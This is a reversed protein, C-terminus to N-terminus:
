LASTSSLESVRVSSELSLCCPRVGVGVELVVFRMEYRGPHIVAGGVVCGFHSAQLFAGSTNQRLLQDRHRRRRLGHDFLDLKTRLNPSPRLPHITHMGALTPNRPSTRRPSEPPHILRFLAIRNQLHPKVHKMLPLPLIPLSKHPVNFRPTSRIRLRLRRTSLWCRRARVCGVVHLEIAAVLRRAMAQMLVLLDEQGNCKMSRVSMSGVARTVLLSTGV